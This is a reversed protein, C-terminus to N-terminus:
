DCRELSKQWMFYCECSGLTLFHIYLKETMMYELEFKNIDIDHLIKNNFYNKVLLFFLLKPPGPLM